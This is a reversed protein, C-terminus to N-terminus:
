NSLRRVVILAVSGTLRTELEVKNNGLCKYIIIYAYFNQINGRQMEKRKVLEETITWITVEYNALIDGGRYLRFPTRWFANM